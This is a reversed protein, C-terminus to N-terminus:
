KGGPLYKDWFTRDGSPYLEDILGIIKQIQESNLYVTKGGSTLTGKNILEKADNVGLKKVATTAIDKFKEEPIVTSKDTNGSLVLQIAAKEQETLLPNKLVGDVGITSLDRQIAKIEESGLGAAILKGADDNSFKYGGTDDPKDIEKRLKANQLRQNELDLTDKQSPAFTKVIWKSPDNAGDGKPIIVLSDGIKQPAQYEPPVDIGLDIHDTSIAGTIPNRTIQYFTKGDPAIGKDLITDVPKNIAFFGKMVNEDGGFNKLMYDYTTKASENVPLNTKPDIKTSNEKFSDFDLLGSSAMIRANEVAQTQREKDFAVISNAKNTANTIQDQAEKYADDSIKSYISALKLGREDNIAKIQKDNATVVNEHKAAAEPSGALGSFVSLANRESLREKGQEQANAVDTDYVKNVSDIMERAALRKREAIQAETEPAQFDNLYANAKGVPSTDTTTPNTDAGPVTSTVKPLPNQDNWQQIAGPNTVDHTASFEKSFPINPKLTEPPM